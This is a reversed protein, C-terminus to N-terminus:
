LAFINFCDQILSWTGNHDGLGGGKEMSADVDQFRRDESSNIAISCPVRLLGLHHEGPPHDDEDNESYHGNNEEYDEEPDSLYMQNEDRHFELEQHQKTFTPKKLSSSSKSKQILNSSKDRYLSSPPSHMKKLSAAGGRVGAADQSLTKQLFAFPRRKPKVKDQQPQSKHSDQENCEKSFLGDSDKVKQQVRKYFSTVYEHDDEHSSTKVVNLGETYDRTGVSRHTISVTNSSAQTLIPFLLITSFRLIM